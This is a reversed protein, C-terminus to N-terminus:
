QGATRHAAILHVNSIEQLGEGQWILCQIAIDTLYNKEFCTM